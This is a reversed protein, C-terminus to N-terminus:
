EEECYNKVYEVIYLGIEEINDVTYSAGTGDENAVFMTYTGDDEIALSVELNLEGEQLIEKIDKLEM